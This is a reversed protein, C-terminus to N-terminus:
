VARRTPATRIVLVAARPLELETLRAEFGLKRARLQVRQLELDLRVEQEIRQVRDGRENTQLIMVARELHQEAEAVEQPRGDLLRFVLEDCKGRLDLEHFPIDVELAGAEGVPQLHVILDSVLTVVHGHRGKQQLREDLVCKTM